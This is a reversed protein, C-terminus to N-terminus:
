YDYVTDKISTFLVTITKKNQYEKLVRSSAQGDLWEIYSAWMLRRM